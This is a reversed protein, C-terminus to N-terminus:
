CLTRMFSLTSLSLSRMLSLSYYDFISLENETM